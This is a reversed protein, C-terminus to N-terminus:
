SAVGGGAVGPTRWKLPEVGLMEHTRTNRTVVLWAQCGAGHYWLERLPGAPNDRLYVYDTFRALADPAAPDPREVDADGLYAFERADRPGCHPCAIRM